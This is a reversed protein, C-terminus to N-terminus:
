ASNKTAIFTQQRWVYINCRKDMQKPEITQKSEGINTIPMQQNKLFM